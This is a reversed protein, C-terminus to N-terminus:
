CTKAKPAVLAGTRRYGVFFKAGEYAAAGGAAKREEILQLRRAVLEMGALASLDFQDYCGSVEVTMCLLEHDHVSRDGDGARLQTKWRQHHQLPGGGSKAIEKVLWKSTRPGELPWDHFLPESIMGALSKRDRWGESTTEGRQVPLVRAHSESLGLSDSLFREVDRQHRRGLM